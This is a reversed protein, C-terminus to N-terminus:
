KSLKSAQEVVRDMDSETAGLSEKWTWWSVQSTCGAPRSWWGTWLARQWGWARKGQGSLEGSKYLRSIQEVVCACRGRGGVLVRKGQEGHEGSKFLGNVQQVVSDVVSEHMCVARQWGCASNMEQEGHEGVEGPKSLRSILQVVRDVAREVVRLPVM